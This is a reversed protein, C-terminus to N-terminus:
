RIRYNSFDPVNGSLSRSHLSPSAKPSASVLTASAQLPSFSGPSMPAPSAVYVAESGGNSKSTRRSSKSFLSGLKGHSSPESKNSSRTQKGSELVINDDFSWYAGRGPTLPSREHKIFRPDRSIDHRTSNRLRKENEEDRYYPYRLKISDCIEGLTLSGSMSGKIAAEALAKVSYPPKAGSEQDLLDNLAVSQQPAGSMTSNRRIARYSTRSRPAPATGILPSFSASSESAPSASNSSSPSTYASPSAYATPSPYSPPFPYPHPQQAQSTEWNSQSPNYFYAGPQVYQHPYSM